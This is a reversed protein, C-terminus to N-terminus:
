RIPQQYNIISLQCNIIPNNTPLPNQFPHLPHTTPTAIIPTKPPFFLQNEVPSKLFRTKFFFGTEAPHYLNTPLPNQLPNLPHPL